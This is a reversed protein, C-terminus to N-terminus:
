RLLEALTEAGAGFADDAFRVPYEGRVEWSVALEDTKKTRPM